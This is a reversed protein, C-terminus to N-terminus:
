LIVSVRQHIFGKVENNVFLSKIGKTGAELLVLKQNLFFFFKKKSLPARDGDLPWFPLHRARDVQKIEQLSLLYLPV